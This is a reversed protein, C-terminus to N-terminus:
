IINNQTITKYNEHYGPPNTQTEKNIGINPVINIQNYSPPQNTLLSQRMDVETYVPLKNFDDDNDDNNDNTINNNKKVKCNGAFVLLLVIMSLYNLCFKIQFVNYEIKIIDNCENYFNIINVYSGYIINILLIFYSFICFLKRKIIKNYNPCLLLFCLTFISASNFIDYFYMNKLVFDCKEINTNNFYYNTNNIYDDNFYDDDTSNYINELNLKSPLTIINMFFIFFLGSFISIVKHTKNTLFDELYAM